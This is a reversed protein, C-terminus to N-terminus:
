QHTGWGNGAWPQVVRVFCSADAGYQGGRDWHLQVKIRCHEDTHIEEGGPGTVVASPSM